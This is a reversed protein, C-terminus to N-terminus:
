IVIDSSQGFNSIIGNYIAEEYFLFCASVRVDLIVAFQQDVSLCRLLNTGPQKSNSPLKRQRAVTTLLGYYLTKKEVDSALV